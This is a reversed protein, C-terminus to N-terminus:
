ALGVGCGCRREVMPVPQQLGPQLHLVALQRGCRGLYRGQGAGLQVPAVGQPPGCQLRRQCAAVAVGPGQLLVPVRGDLHEGLIRNVQEAQQRQALQPDGPNAHPLLISERMRQILGEAQQGVEAVRDRPAQRQAPGPHM